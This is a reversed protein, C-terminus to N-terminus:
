IKQLHGQAALDRYYEKFTSIMTNYLEDTFDAFHGHDKLYEFHKRGKKDHLHFLADASGWFDVPIIDHRECLEIDFAPNVKVWKGKIFLGVYGHYVMVDTGYADLLSPPLLLNRIDAFQLRAPIGAVRALAALLLAKPICFGIGENLTRSAKFIEREPWDTFVRYKIADRVFYFLIKAKEEENEENGILELAKQRVLPSDCDISATCQLYEKM